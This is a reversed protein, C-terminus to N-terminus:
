RQVVPEGCERCRLAGPALPCGCMDCFTRREPPPQSPQTAGCGGCFKAGPRLPADCQVCRLAAVPDPPAPAAIASEAALCAPDSAIPDPLPLDRGRRHALLGPLGLLGLLPLLLALGVLPNSTVNILHYETYGAGGSVGAALVQIDRRTGDYFPRPSLYTLRYEGQLNGALTTYLGALDSADPSYYYAGDTGTAIQRLVSEDIGAHDRGGQEGLGVVYVPQGASRAYDIAEDLSHSSGFEAPCDSSDRCDQGDTLVLLVRRGPQNHLLDVAEIISDYLATGGDPHLRDIAAQLADQDSSFPKVTQVDSNFSILAAQDDPRLLAVFADAANRAGDIKGADGMSGSRDIVLATSISTGGPGVFGTLDVPTGDEIIQFDTRTLGTQLDGAADSVATYIAIEPYASTDVQSVRVQGASDTSSQYTPLFALALAVVLLFGLFLALLTRPSRRM